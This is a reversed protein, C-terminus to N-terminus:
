IVVLNFTGAVLTVTGVWSNCFAVTVTSGSITSITPALEGTTSSGQDVSLVVVHGAPVPASMTASQTYCTNSGVSQSSIVLTGTISTPAYCPVGTGSLTGSPDAQVCQTGGSVLASDTVTPVTVPGSFSSTFTPGCGISERVAATNDTGYFDCYGAAVNANLITQAYYGYQSTSTSPDGAESSYFGYYHAATGSSPSGAYFGYLSGAGTNAGSMQSEFSIGNKGTRTVSTNVFMPVIGTAIGAYSSDSVNLDIGGTPGDAGNSHEVLHDGTMLWYNHNTDTNGDVLLNAGTDFELTANDNIDITGLGWSPDNVVFWSQGAFTNLPDNYQVSYRPAGPTGGGPAASITLTSGSPTLTINSGAALTWYSPLGSSGSFNALFTNNATSSLNFTLAPTTTPNAVSTTFLPTLNGASFNTVTGTGAAGGTLTIKFYTCTSAPVCQREVYTGALVYYYFYGNGDAYYPYAIPQTLAPDTFITVPTNCQLQANYTCVTIVAHPVVKAYNANNVIAYSTRQPNQAAAVSALAFFVFQILKKM